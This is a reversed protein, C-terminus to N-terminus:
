SAFGSIDIDSRGGNREMREREEGRRKLSIYISKEVGSCRWINEKRKGFLKRL